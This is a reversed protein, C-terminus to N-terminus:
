YTNDLPTALDLKLIQLSDQCMEVDQKVTAGLM